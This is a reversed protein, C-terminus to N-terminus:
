TPSLRSLAELEERLEDFLMQRNQEHFDRSRTLRALEGELEEIRTRAETLEGELADIEEGRARAAELAEDLREGESDREREASLEAELRDIEEQFPETMQAWAEDIARSQRRQEEVLADLDGQVQDLHDRLADREELLDEIRALAADREETLEDFQVRLTSHDATLEDLLAQLEDREEARADRELLAGELEGALVDREARIQELRDRTSIHLADDVEDDGQAGIQERLELQRRAGAITFMETYLLSQITDLLEIDARQYVRQGSKTKEPCLREFESEWYRLVYPKLGLIRSVEGIKFYTKDEPIELADSV